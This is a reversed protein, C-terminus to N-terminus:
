CRHIIRFTSPKINKTRSFQLSDCRKRKRKYFNDSLLLSFYGDEIKSKKKM